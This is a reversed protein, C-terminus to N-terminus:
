EINTIEPSGMSVFFYTPKEAGEKPKRSRITVLGLGSVQFPGAGQAEKIAKIKDSKQDLLADLEAQIRKTEAELKRVGDWLAKTDVKPTASVESASAPATAPAANGVPMTVPKGESLKAAKEAITEMTAKGKNTTQNATSM